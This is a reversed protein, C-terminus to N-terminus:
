DGQRLRSRHMFSRSQLLIQTAGADFGKAPDDVLAEELAPRAIWQKALPLLGLMAIQPLDRIMKCVTNGQDAPLDIFRDTHWREKGKGMLVLGSELGM